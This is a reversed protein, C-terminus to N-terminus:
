MSVDESDHNVLLLNLITRIGELSRHNLLFASAGREGMSPGPPVNRKHGSELAKDGSM